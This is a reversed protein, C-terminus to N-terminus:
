EVNEHDVRKRAEIMLLYSSFMYSFNKLCDLIREDKLYNMILASLFIIKRGQNFPINHLDSYGAEIIQM